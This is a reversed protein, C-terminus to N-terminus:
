LDHTVNSEAINQDFMECHLSLNVKYPKSAIIPSTELNLIERIETELQCVSSGKLKEEAQRSLGKYIPEPGRAIIHYM